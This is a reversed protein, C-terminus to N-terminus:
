GDTKGAAPAEYKIGCFPCFHPVITAAKKKGRGREIQEANITPREVFDTGPWRILGLAIRTNHERLQENFTEVCDCGM